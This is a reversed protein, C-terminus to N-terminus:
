GKERLLKVDEDIQTTPGDAAFRKKDKLQGTIRGTTNDISAKEVKGANAQDIFESYTLRDTTGNNFFPSLVLALIVLVGLVALVWRWSQDGGTGSGGGSGGTGPLRPGSRDPRDSRDRGQPRLDQPTRSMPDMTPAGDGHEARPSPVNCAM